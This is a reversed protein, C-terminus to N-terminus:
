HSPVDPAFSRLAGLNRIRSPVYSMFAGSARLKAFEAVIM